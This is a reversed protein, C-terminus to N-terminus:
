WLSHLGPSSSVLRRSVGGLIVFVCVCECWVVVALVLYRGQVSRVHTPLFRQVVPTHGTSFALIYENKRNRVWSGVLPDM